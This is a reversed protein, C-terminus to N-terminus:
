SIIRCIKQLYEPHSIGVITHYSTCLHRPWLITGMKRITWMKHEVNATPGESKISMQGLATQKPKIMHVHTLIPSPCLNAKLNGKISAQIWSNRWWKAALFGDTETSLAPPFVRRCAVGRTGSSVRIASSQTISTIPSFFYSTTSGVWQYVFM